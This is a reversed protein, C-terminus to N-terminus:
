RSQSADDEQLVRRLELPYDTLIAHLGAEAAARWNDPQAGAVTAGAIFSRKKAARVARMEERTPVYRFYVWDASKDNLARQFESTNNAVTAINAQPATKRLMARLDPDVITRGIFLLRPLVNREAALAAVERGADGTKLDVAIVINADRYRSVLDLVERVSPPRENAFRNSFWSGADLKQIEALTM